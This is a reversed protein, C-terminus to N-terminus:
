PQSVADMEATMAQYTAWAGPTWAGNAILDITEEHSEGIRYFEHTYAPPTSCNPPNEVVQMRIYQYSGDSISRRHHGFCHNQNPPAPPVGLPTFYQSFAYQRTGPHNAPDQIVPLFSVSDLTVGPAGQNVNAGTIAAITRFLDLAGVPVDSTFGGPSPVLPGSVILPVRVGWEYVTTKGHGTAHPPVNMVNEPTGNDGIVFIMTNALKAPTIGDILNGIETDVAELMAKYFLRRQQVPAGAGAEDGPVFGWCAIESETEPSALGLPPVEFPAHPPNFCVYAFFANTQANIWNRADTSTATGHWTTSPTPVPPPTGADHVIKSWDFYDEGFANVNSISGSFHQFGNDTPHTENGSLYTLHWKGFAARKYPLGLQVPGGSFGDRLLEPILVESDPLKATGANTIAGIGTRFAYRGTLICARTPSCMPNAYASNFLIGGQRLKNLNPTHAYSEVHNTPAVNPCVIEPTYPPSESYFSLKDTGVDDLVIVLVNKARPIPIPEEEFEFQQAAAVTAAMAAFGLAIAIARYM